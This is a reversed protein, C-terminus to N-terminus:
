YVLGDGGMAAIALITTERGAGRVVVVAAAVVVLVDTEYEDRTAMVVRVVVLM